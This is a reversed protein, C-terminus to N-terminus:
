GPGSWPRRFVSKERGRATPPTGPSAPSPAGPSATLEWLIAELAEDLRNLVDDAALRLVRFRRRVLWATRRGDYQVRADHTPGDIEILLRAKFCAFDVIYPGIPVQRRFRHGGLQQHRLRSWLLLEVATM